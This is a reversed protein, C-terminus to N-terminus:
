ITEKDGYEVRHPEKEMYYSENQPILYNFHVLLEMKISVPASEYQKKQNKRYFIRIKQAQSCARPFRVYGKKM